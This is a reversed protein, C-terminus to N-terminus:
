HDVKSISINSIYLKDLKQIVLGATKANKIKIEVGGPLEIPSNAVRSM